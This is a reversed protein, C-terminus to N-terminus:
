ASKMARLEGALREIEPRRREIVHLAVGCESMLSPLTDLSEAFNHMWAVLRARNTFIVGAEEFRISLNEIIRDWDRGGPEEGDWRIVRVIARADLFSPGFDFLPALELSGDVNKLVAMNRGHNDRNGLALNLLDRRMYELLEAEFHTVCQALAILVDHHRVSTAASDLIGAISYLSEVGLRVEIGNLFGRDFRPILLAGGVFEPLKRTVRLGLRHGVRQYLAEHSLIDQASEGAEPVPFKLLMYRRVAFGPTGSDPHWRGNEDEVVWFKPAEGQTDTAGAVTAGLEHAYEVFTDGRSVMEALEFGDHKRQVRAERPRIRLNGVPNIAGSELLAWDTLVNNSVREIRKRAAGQPLLDILFSPWHPLDRTALHVPARVTLARHDRAGLNEVAYDAEYQLRVRGNRSTEGDHLRTVSACRHWAGRLHIDFDM